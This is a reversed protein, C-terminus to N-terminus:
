AAHLLRRLIGQMFRLAVALGIAARHAHSGAFHDCGISGGM